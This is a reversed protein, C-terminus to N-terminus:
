TKSNVTHTFQSTHLLGQQVGLQQGALLPHVLADHVLEVLGPLVDDISYWWSVFVFLGFMYLKIIKM